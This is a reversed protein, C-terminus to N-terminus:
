ASDVPIDQIYKELRCFADQGVEEAEGYEGAAVLADELLWMERVVQPDTEAHAYERLAVVSRIREVADSLSGPGDGDGDGDGDGSHEPSLDMLTRIACAVKGAQVRSVKTTVSSTNPTRPEELIADTLLGALIRMLITTDGHFGPGKALVSNGHKWLAAASSARLTEYDQPPSADLRPALLGQLTRDEEVSTIGSVDETSTHLGETGARSIQQAGIQSFWQNATSIITAPPAISCANLHLRCYLPLLRPNLHKFLIEANLIWARELLSSLARSLLWPGTTIATGRGDISAYKSSSTTTTSSSSTPLSRRPISVARTLSTVLGRLGHLMIPVPHSNPIRGEILALLHALLMQFLQTHRLMVMHHMIELLNWMLVPGELTLMDEVLLFAKRVMRGALRGHGRDLLDTALKFTFNIKETREPLQEDTLPRQQPSVLFGGRSQVSEFFAVSCVRVSTLFMLMLGDHQGLGPIATLVLGLERPRGSKRSAEKRCEDKTTLTPVIVASRRSNKQFGWKAFRKKYMQETAKFGHEMEMYQMIYRLKRRERVYLREIESYMAAWQSQTPVLQPAPM